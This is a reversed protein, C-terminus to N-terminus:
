TGHVISSRNETPSIDIDALGYGGAFISRIESGTSIDWIKITSDRSCSILSQEDPSFKVSYVAASHGRIETLERMSDSELLHILGKSDGFAIIKGSPSVALKAPTGEKLEFKVLSRDSNRSLYEWEWGRYNKPTNDIWRKADSKEDLRLSSNAAAIHAIYSEYNQPLVVFQFLILFSLFFIYKM